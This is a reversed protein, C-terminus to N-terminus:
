KEENKLNQLLFVPNQSSCKMETNSQTIVDNIILKSNEIRQPSSSTAQDIDQRKAYSDIMPGIYKGKKAYVYPYIKTGRLIEVQLRRCARRM